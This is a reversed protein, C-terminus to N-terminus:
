AGNLFISQLHRCFRVGFEAVRICRDMKNKAFVFIEDARVGLIEHVTEAGLGVLREAQLDDLRARISTASAIVAM